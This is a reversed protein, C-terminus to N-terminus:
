ALYNLADRVRSARQAASVERSCVSAAAWFSVLLECSPREEGGRTRGWAPAEATVEVGGVRSASAGCRGSVSGLLHREYFYLAARVATAQVVYRPM